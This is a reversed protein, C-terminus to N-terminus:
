VYVDLNQGIVDYPATEPINSFSGRRKSYNVQSGTSHGPYSGRGLHTSLTTKSVPEIWIRRVTVPIPHSM